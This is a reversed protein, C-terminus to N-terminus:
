SRQRQRGQMLLATNKEDFGVRGLPIAGGIADSIRAYDEDNFGGCLEILQMGEAVMAMAEAVLADIDGSAFITSNFGDGPLTTRLGAPPYGGAKILFAYKRLVM